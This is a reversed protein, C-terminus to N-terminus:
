TKGAICGQQMVPMWGSTSRLGGPPCGSFKSRGYYLVM